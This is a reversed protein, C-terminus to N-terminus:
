EHTGPLPIAPKFYYRGAQVAYIAELIESPSANKVVYGKAGCKLAHQAYSKEEHSSVILVPLEPAQKLFETTLDYGNGDPMSVDVILFDPVDKAFCGRAETLNSASWALDLEPADEAISRFVARIISHDDVVAIRLPSKSLPPPTTTM